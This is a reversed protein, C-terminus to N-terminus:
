KALVVRDGTDLDVVLLRDPLTVFAANASPDYAIGKAEKLSPGVGCSGSCIETRNGSAIDVELIAERGIDLVILRQKAGDFAVDVPEKFEPGDGRWSTSIAEVYMIDDIRHGAGVGGGRSVAFVKQSEPDYDIGSATASTCYLTLATAPAFWYTERQGTQLDISYIDDLQPRDPVDLVLARGRELDCAVSVPQDYPEVRGFETTTRAGTAIDLISVQGLALVVAATADANFDFDIPKLGAASLDAVVTRAATECDVAILCDRDTDLVVARGGGPDCSVSHCLTGIRIGSGVTTGELPHPTAKGTELDVSVVMDLGVDLIFATDGATDLRIDLPRLIDYGLLDLRRRAGSPIDIEVLGNRDSAVVWAVDGDVAMGRWAGVELSKDSAHASVTTSNGTATDLAVVIDLPGDVALLRDRPADYELAMPETAWSGDVVQRITGNALEIEVLPVKPPGQVYASSGDCCLLGPRDVWIDAATADVIITRDGTVTDITFLRSSYADFVVVTDDQPNDAFQVPQLPLEGAGTAHDSVVDTTGTTLDVSVLSRRQAELALARDGDMVLAIPDELGRTLVRVTPGASAIVNGAADVCELQLPNEGEHVPVVAQWSAFDDYSHAAAGNVRLSAIGRDDSARGRVAISGETTASVPTPFTVEVSPARTDVTWSHAVPTEDRHGRDDAAYAVLEHTGDALPPTTYLSQVLHVSGGDLSVAFRAETLNSKFVFTPQPDNGLFPPAQLM